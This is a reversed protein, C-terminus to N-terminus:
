FIYLRILKQKEKTCLCLFFGLYKPWRTGWLELPWNCTYSSKCLWACCVFVCHLFNSSTSITTPKQPHVNFWSYIRNVFLFYVLIVNPPIMILPFRQKKNSLPLSPPFNVFHTLIWFEIRNRILATFLFTGRLRLGSTFQINSPGRSLLM